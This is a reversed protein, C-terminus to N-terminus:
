LTASKLWSNHISSETCNVEITFISGPLENCYICFNKFTHQLCNQVHAWVITVMICYNKLKCFNEFISFTGCFKSFIGLFSSFKSFTCLNKQFNQINDFYAWFQFFKSCKFIHGLFTFM